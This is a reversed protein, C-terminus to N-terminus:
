GPLRARRRLGREKDEEHSERPFPSAPMGRGPAHETRTGDSGM